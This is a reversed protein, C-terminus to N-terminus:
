ESTRGVRQLHLPNINCSIASLPVCVRARAGCVCVCVCVCVYVTSEEPRLIPGHCLGGGLLVCCECCVDVGGTPNSGVIGARSRGCGV